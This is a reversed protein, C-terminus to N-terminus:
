FFAVNDLGRTCDCDGEKGITAAFCAKAEARSETAADRAAKNDLRVLGTLRLVNMNGYVAENCFFAESERKQQPLNFAAENIRAQLEELFGSDVIFQSAKAAEAASFCTNGASDVHFFGGDSAGDAGGPLVVMHSPLGSRGGEGRPMILDLVDGMSFAGLTQGGEADLEMPAVNLATWTMVDNGWEHDEFTLGPTALVAAVQAQREASLPKHETGTFFLPYAHLAATAQSRTHIITRVGLLNCYDGLTAWVPQMALHAHPTGTMEGGYQM